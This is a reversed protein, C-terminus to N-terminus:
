GSVDSTNRGSKRDGTEDRTQERIDELGKHGVDKIKKRDKAKDRQNAENPIQTEEDTNEM